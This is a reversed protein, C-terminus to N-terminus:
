PGPPRDHADVAHLSQPPAPIRALNYVNASLFSVELAFREALFDALSLYETDKNLTITPNKFALM